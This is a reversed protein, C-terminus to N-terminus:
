GTPVLVATGGAVLKPEGEALALLTAEAFVQRRGAKVIRAEARFRSGQAPAYCNVQFSSTMVPGALTAAAYGCATDLVAAILGAHLFGAFQGFEDRWALEVAAAGDGASVLELGMWRHLAAAQHAARLLDAADAM